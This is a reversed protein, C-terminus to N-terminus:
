EGCGSKVARRPRAKPSRIRKTRPWETCPRSLQGVMEWGAGAETRAFGAAQGKQLPQPHNVLRGHHTEARELHGAHTDQSPCVSEVELAGTAVSSAHPSLSKRNRKEARGAEGGGAGSVHKAYPM